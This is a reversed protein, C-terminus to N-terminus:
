VEFLGQGGAILGGDVVIDAGPPMVDQFADIVNATGLLDVEFVRKPPAMAPSLGSTHVVVDLHGALAAAMSFKHMADYDVMDVM